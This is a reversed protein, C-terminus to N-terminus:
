VSPEVDPWTSAVPKVIFCTVSYELPAVRPLIVITSLTTLPFSAPSPGKLSIFTCNTM